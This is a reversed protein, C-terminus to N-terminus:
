KTYRRAGAYRKVYYPEDLSSVTVGRRPNAAHIFKDNGIYMGVHSIPGRTNFFVLDGEQLDARDIPEGRAFQMKASHPLKIGRKAYLHQTLGSCDFGERGTGGWVYPMGRYSMAERTLRARRKEQAKQKDTLPPKSPYRVSKVQPDDTIKADKGLEVDIEANDGDAIIEEPTPKASAPDAPNTIPVQPTGETKSQNITQDAFAPAIALCVFVISLALTKSLLPMREEKDKNVAQLPELLHYVSHYLRAFRRAM